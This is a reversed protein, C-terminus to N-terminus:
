STITSCEEVHFAFVGTSVRNIWIGRPLAPNATCESHPTEPEFPWREGFKLAPAGIRSSVSMHVNLAPLDRFLRAFHAAIRSRLYVVLIVVLGKLHYPQTPPMMQFNM